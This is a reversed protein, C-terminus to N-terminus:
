KITKKLKQLGVFMTEQVKNDSIIKIESFFYKAMRFDSFYIM